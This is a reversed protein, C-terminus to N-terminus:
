ILLYGDPFVFGYVVAGFVGALVFVILVSVASFVEGVMKGLALVIVAAFLAHTFNGHLFQYGVFRVLHELPWDGASLMWHFAQASFAYSQQASVRWGVAERGGLIGEAGLFFVLEIGVIALSRHNSKQLWGINSTCRKKRNLLLVTIIVLIEIKRAQIFRFPDTPLAVAM